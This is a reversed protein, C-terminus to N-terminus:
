RGTRRVGVLAQASPGSPEPVPALYGTVYLGSSKERHREGALDMDQPGRGILDRRLTEVLRARVDTSAAPEHPATM